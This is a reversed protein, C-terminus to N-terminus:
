LDEEDILKHARGFALIGKVEWDELNPVADMYENIAARSAEPGNQTIQIALQRQVEYCASANLSMLAVSREKGTGLRITRQRGCPAIYRRFSVLM